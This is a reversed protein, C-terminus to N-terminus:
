KSESQQSGVASQQSVVKKMWLLFFIRVKARGFFHTDLVRSM